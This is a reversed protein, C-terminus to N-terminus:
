KRMPGQLYHGGVRAEVGHLRAAFAVAAGHNGSSHAVVGHKRETDTMCALANLAGRIKFAGSRQLVEAKFALKVGALDDLADCSLVPTCVVHSKIREHADVIDQM